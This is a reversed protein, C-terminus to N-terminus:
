LLQLKNILKETDTLTYRLDIASDTEKTIPTMSLQRTSKYRYIKRHYHIRCYGVAYYEGDCDDANCRRNQIM